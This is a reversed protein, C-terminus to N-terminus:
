YNVNVTVTDAYSDATFNASPVTAFVPIAVAAGTGNGTFGNGVTTSTATNGWVLGTPSVSRLQYPVSDTNGTVPAVNLAAMTGAGTTSSNSPALGIFYPTGKSCTVSISNNNSFNTDSSDHTGLDINSTTGAVISCAKNIKLLVQFTAVAPNPAAGATGAVLCATFVTVATLTKKLLM